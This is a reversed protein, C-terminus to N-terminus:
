AVAVQRGGGGASPDQDRRHLNFKEMDEKATNSQYKKLKVRKKGAFPDEVEYYTWPSSWGSNSQEESLNKPNFSVGARLLIAGCDACIPKNVGIAILQYGVFRDSLLGEIYHYLIWMEAHIHSERPTASLFQGTEKIQRAAEVSDNLRTIQAVVYRIRGDKELAAVATTNQSNNLEYANHIRRAIGDLAEGRASAKPPNARLTKLSAARRLQRAEQEEQKQQEIAERKEREKQEKAVKNAAVAKQRDAASTRRRKRPEDEDESEEKKRERKKCGDKGTNKCLGTADWDKIPNNQVYTYLNLGDAAGSPDASMWRGLWSIYYRAGYYYLGTTDDCEKGTYRYDKLAVESQNYGAIVSTGGFPFYDEWSILSASEDVEVLSTGISNTLQYRLKIEGPSDTQRKYADIMWRNLTCFLLENSDLVDFAHRELIIASGRASQQRIRYVRYAGLYITERVEIITGQNAYRESIKRVRQMDGDYVYYDSDSPLGDRRTILDVQKLENEYNWEVRRLNDLALLNGNRDYRQGALRNSDAEVPLIRKWSDTSSAQPTLELLNGSLDYRYQERYNELAQMDNPNPPLALYLSQKFGTRHTDAQIGPHQRGTAQLLRYLADYTYDSLDEVKRQRHFVVPESNDRLRTINGVPDYTYILSQFTEPREGQRQTEITLPRLTTEEYTITTVLGPAGYVVRMRQADANYRIDDIIVKETTREQEPVTLVIRRLLGSPDYTSRSVTGDPTTQAIMRGLADYQFTATFQEPELLVIAPNQWDIWGKYDQCLQSVQENIQSQLAYQNYQTIGSQDYARFVEGHLNRDYADPQQEGYITQEVVIDVRPEVDGGIVRKQLSRQLLDYTYSTQFGRSDWSHSTSGLVNVLLWHMGADPSSTSLEQGTMDFAQDFPLGRPDRTSTANGAIDLTKRTLLYTHDVAPNAGPRVETNVQILAFSRELSDYLAYEPTDAFVAAKDLADKEDPPASHYHEQYYPSLLVTDDEDYAVVAWPYYHNFLLFGKATLQRILRGLADYYYITPPPLLNQMIREIQDEYFPNASFFPQYERVILGKNNYITRGSVVWIEDEQEPLPPQGILDNKFAAGGKLKNEINRGFGDIYQVQVRVRTQQDPALDSVYTERLLQILASPQQREQWASLDFYSYTSAQQLYLHPSALVEDFTPTHLAYAALDGNGIVRGDSKIQYLTTAIVQGLPVYLAQSIRHNYDTIQRYQLTTYDVEASTVLLVPNTPDNTVMASTQVQILNYPDYAVSTEGGFVSRYLYPLYFREPTQYYSITLGPQWWYGDKLEYGAQLLMDPNVRNDFAPEVWAAPFVASETHHLLTRKHAQAFTAATQDESWYYLREWAYLRAQLEPPQFPQQYAIVHLLAAQVARQIEAFDFYSRDAITLGGIELSQEQCELGLWRYGQAQNIENIYTTLEVVVHLALQEDYITHVPDNSKVVPLRRPYAVQCANLVNGYADVALTFQHNIAPDLPNREYRYTITEHTYTYFAAEFLATHPQLLRVAFNAETVNYPNTADACGDDGYVEVRLLQGALAAYAQRLTEADSANIAAELHSDPLVYADPDKQFYEQAYQQSLGREPIYAGTHYWSRTYIPPTYEEAALATPSGLDSISAAYQEFTESDWREIFGFGRFERAVPDYYGDHYRFRSVLRSHAIMDYSEIREVVQVPFPLRTVWPKGAQKDALYFFTSPKYHITSRAGLNNQWACLLYPKVGNSFDYYFHQVTSTFQSFVLCSSGNGPVDAFTITTFDDYPLPLPLVLADSFSNGSQNLFIEIHERYVYILDTTGSGNVDALFLRSRDLGGRFRPANGFTIRPGFRGYGLDPWYEVSGDRIRVRHTLGDGCMDAFGLFESDSDDRGMPFEPERLKQWPPGFGRTGHAPYVRVYDDDFVVVDAMGSGNIDIMHQQSLAIEPPYAAFDQYPRWSGDPRAEYYGCRGAQRVLLSLQGNGALDTLTTDPSDSELPFRPPPLPPAFPGDGEPNWYLVTKDDRFFCGPLGEGYLDVLSYFSGEVPGPIESGNTVTLPRYTSQLPRFPTYTFSLPPLSRWTYAGTEDKKFGIQEITELFSFLPSEAYSLHTARVLESGQEFHHFILINRCLRYTRIEFGAKYTSFADQRAAWIGPANHPHTYDYEGYDFVMELAFREQLEDTSDAVFYNGYIIREIYINASSRHNVEFITASVNELNERKYKYLVKDGLSNVQETIYWQFIHTPEDPDAIRSDTSLGYCTTINDRSIVKWYSLLTTTDTWLEIGSFANEMKPIYAQVLWAVGDQVVTRQDPIWQGEPTKLLRPVLEGAESFIFVDKETYTPIGYETKRSFHAINVSFGPGFPGNGQGSDYSLSLEPQGHRAPSTAIPVSLTMTGTFENSRFDEGLGRTGGGGEPLSLSPVTINRATNKSM